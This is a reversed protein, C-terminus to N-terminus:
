PQEKNTATDSVIDTETVHRRYAQQVNYLIVQRPLDAYQDPSVGMRRAEAVLQPTSCRVLSAYKRM